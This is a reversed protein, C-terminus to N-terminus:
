VGPRAALLHAVQTSTLRCENNKDLLVLARNPKDVFEVRTLKRDGNADYYGLDATQFMGDASMIKGYETKNVLGDRNADTDDFLEGAYTRWEECTIVDDGNRDWTGVASLFVRDTVGFQSGGSCGTLLLVFLAGTCVLCRSQWSNLSTMKLKGSVRSDRKDKPRM